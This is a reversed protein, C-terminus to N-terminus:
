DVRYFIIFGGYPNLSWLLGVPIIGLHTEYVALAGANLDGIYSDFQCKFTSGEVDIIEGIHVRGVDLLHVRKGVTPSEGRIWDDMIIPGPTSRHFFSRYLPHTPRIANHCLSLPVSDSDIAILSFRKQVAVVKGVYRFGNISAGRGKVLD